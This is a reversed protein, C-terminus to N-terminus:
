LHQVAHDWNVMLRNNYSDSETNGARAVEDLAIHGADTPM